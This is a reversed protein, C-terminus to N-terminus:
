ESRLAEVPDKRSAASSPILGAIFSLVMSVVILIAGASVPLIAINPVNFNDHVIINVPITLLVTFLIGIVGAVFGVILTEANFVNSIDRKSAGISRLIGIEKKRELVSIYTIIGIMISSVVLSIAVFAILIATIKNIIDTVSKMLTGVIDTFTIVEDDKGAAEVRDNYDNLIEIIKEKGEFDIPYISISSPKAPNAYGLKKLNNESSSEEGSMFSLMLQQLETESLNFQFAEAFVDQDVSMATAMNATLEGVAKELSVAFQKQVNAMVSAMYSSIYKQMYKQIAAQQAAAAGSDVTAALGTALKTQVKPTAMYTSFGEAIQTPTLLNNSACYTFYESMIETMTAVIKTSNDAGEDTDNGALVDSLDFKPMKPMSKTFADPDMMKSFDVQLAAPDMKFAGKLADEDISILSGMDFDEVGEEESEFTKGTFVNVKPKDLQSKVIKASAAEDMLHATMSAPYYIGPSLMPTSTDPNAMVIGGIKIDVGDEVLGKMYDDDNQM